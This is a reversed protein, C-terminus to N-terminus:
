LTDTSVAAQPLPTRDAWPRDTLPIVHLWPWWDCWNSPAAATANEAGDAAPVPTATTRENM